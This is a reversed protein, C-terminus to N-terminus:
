TPEPRAGRWHRPVFRGTDARYTVYPPHTRLMWAEELRAKGHLATLLALWAAPALPTALAAWATWVLGLGILLLASYMPHRIWRYPGTTVLRGGAAPVPVIRFNGPRNASVAWVGLAAGAALLGWGLPPVAGAWLAPAALLALAALLTFQLAVLGRGQPLATTQAAGAPPPEPQPPPSTPAPDPAPTSM